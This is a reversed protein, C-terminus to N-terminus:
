DNGDNEEYVVNMIFNSNFAHTTVSIIKVNRKAFFTNFREDVIKPSDLASKNSVFSISKYM